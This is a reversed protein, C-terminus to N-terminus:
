TMCLSITCNRNDCFFKGLTSLQTEGVKALPISPENSAHEDTELSSPVADSSKQEETEFPLQSPQFRDRKEDKLFNSDHTWSQQKHDFSDLKQFSPKKGVKLNSELYSSDAAFSKQEGEELLPLNPQIGDDNGAKLLDTDSTLTSSEQKGVELPPLRSQDQVARHEVESLSSTPISSQQQSAHTPVLKLFRNGKDAESSSSDPLSPKQESVQPSLLCSQLGIDQETELPNSDSTSSLQDASKSPPSSPQTAADKDVKVSSADPSSSQQKAGKISALNSPIRVTIDHDADLSVNRQDHGDLSTM